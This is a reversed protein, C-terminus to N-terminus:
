VNTYSKEIGSVTLRDCHLLLLNADGNRPYRQKLNAKREYRNVSTNM